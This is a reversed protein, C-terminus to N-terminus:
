SQKESKNSHSLYSYIAPIVFLTLFTACIMGGVVTIGMAIRSESGAGTSVAMPLIGLITALSTMLIPRLRSVAADTIADHVSLGHEKRQNAFEVILIGNKTVLGILMIIGIQSFINMTQSFLYMSLLAGILALPVTLMIILPDRFSEFQAALVLYILILALSFAFILSSSSEVFDKSNGSLTTSFTDDLVKKAIRDMEELGDGLTKGKVMDASVTASVFRNYHYLKPPTSSETLTVFNDLQILEGKDNRVYIGALDTPKSRSPRDFMSLIEYQKGNRIYYGIRQESMALQLTEAINQVTVGMTAARDRNISVTLEPKTFKLNVDSVSFVPSASVENMFRPLAERMDDLSQAQLVYQVPLGGKQNGFTQQQSVITRAGTMKSLRPTLDAAIEQQTRERQDADKLIITFNSSNVTNRMGVMALHGGDQEPVYKNITDTVRDTYALMYDYSTGEPATSTAKLQSRDELPAMESPIQTWLWGVVGLTVVLIVVAVWRRRLFGLLARKYFNTLGTFFPETIRYLKGQTSSGSLMKVTIMPTFTLAVFASIVVAGAIVLSFERFLRGTVGQLFVIPFFVAVLAVTTSIVAFFIEQTGKIGAEEPDMGQEIKSYINEMVVIADDVVLGIALVIALLTLINISFGCIYMIFFAGILSVPIALVPILTTRWTRLFLFIILVVLVFAEVITHQVENISQRIFKTNDFGTRIVIDEPLDKKIQEIGKVANDVITIYNAGPQPILMCSVMTVGNRKLISRTNQAEIIAEGVDSFRVVREGDQSIILNNFDDITELRGLTRIILETNDGEIRGAPLEINERTVADRVDMPTLGYAALLMPDMKLRISMRRSGRVDVSSVGPITQLREKFNVEAYESLDIISRSESELTVSYIPEADADAKTVVPPDVDAPLKRQAESVKNRVDNAATELDVEINFEVSIYSTGDSSVSSISRIGPIGNISAELPETIQTEIVDANAGSFTTRVSIIPPDVSPYDRVGLFTFGIFGIILVFINLVTALVPRKICVSALSM